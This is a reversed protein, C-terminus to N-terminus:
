EEEEEMVETETGAIDSSVEDSPQILQKFKTNESITEFDRDDAAITKFVVDQDIATKLDRLAPKIKGLNTYVAARVYYSYALDAKSRIVKNLDTIAENLIEMRFLCIGRGLYGLYNNPEMEIGKNLSFISKEYEGIQYYHIAQLFYASFSAQVGYEDFTDVKKSFEELLNKQDSSIFIQDKDFIEPNTITSIIEKAEQSLKDESIEERVFAEKEELGRQVAPRSAYLSIIDYLKKREKRSRSSQILGIFFALVIVGAFGITVFNIIDILKNMRRQLQQSASFIEEAEVSEIEELDDKLSNIQNELKKTDDKQQDTLDEVDKKLQEVDTRILASDKELAEVRNQVTETTEQAVAQNLSTIGLYMILTLVLVFKLYTFLRNILCHVMNGGESM